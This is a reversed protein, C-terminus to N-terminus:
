WYGRSPFEEDDGKRKRERRDVYSEHVFTALGLLGVIGMFVWVGADMLAHVRDVVSM